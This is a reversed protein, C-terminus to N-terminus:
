KKIGAEQKLSDRNEEIYKKLRPEMVKNNIMSDNELWLLYDAPVQSMMKGQHKGFWM